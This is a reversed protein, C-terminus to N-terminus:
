QTAPYPVPKSYDPRAIVRGNQDVMAAYCQTAPAPPPAVNGYAPASPYGYPYGYYPYGYYPAYAGYYISAGYYPWWFPGWFPGGYFGGYYRGGYYGGGGHGGGRGQALAPAPFVVILIVVLILVLALATGKM